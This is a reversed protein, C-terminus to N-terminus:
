SHKSGKIKKSCYVWFGGSRAVVKCNGFAQKMREMLRQGAIRHRAVMFLKGDQNLHKPAQDVIQFCVELGASIPPNSAIVDFSGVKSYLDSNTVKATVGLKKANMRAVKLARRNVDSMTVEAGLKAAVLGVVGIGCGLDLFKGGIDMNKILALTGRDLKRWSFIGPATYLEFDMGRLNGVRLLGLRFPTEQKESFYHSM